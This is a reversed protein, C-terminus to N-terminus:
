VQLYGRVRFGGAGTGTQIHVRGRADVPFDTAVLATPAGSFRAVVRGQPDEINANIRPETVGRLVCTAVSSPPGASGGPANAAHAPHGNSTVAGALLALAVAGARDTM